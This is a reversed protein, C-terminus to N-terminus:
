TKAKEKKYWMPATAFWLLTGVGMCKRHLDLEITGNFVLISPIITLGLAIIALTASIIKMM